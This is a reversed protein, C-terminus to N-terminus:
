EVASFGATGKRDASEVEVTFEYKGPMDITVDAGIHGGMVVLDKKEKVKGPGTVTVTGHIGEVSKKTVPDTVFLMIHHRTKIKDLVKPSIGAKAMEAKVDLLRAEAAWPGIMGNYIRDGKMGHDEGSGEGHAVHMGHGHVDGQGDLPTKSGAAAPHLNLCVLLAVAAAPRKM